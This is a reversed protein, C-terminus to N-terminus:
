PFSSLLHTDNQKDTCISHILIALRGCESIRSALLHMKTFNALLDFTRVVIDGNTELQHFVYFFLTCASYCLNNCVNFTLINNTIHKVVLSIENATQLFDAFVDYVFQTEDRLAERRLQIQAMSELEWIGDTPDPVDRSLHRRIETPVTKLEKLPQFQTAHYLRALVGDTYDLLIILKEVARTKDM